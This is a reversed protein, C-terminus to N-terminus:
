GNLKGAFAETLREEAAALNKRNYQVNKVARDVAMQHEVTRDWLECNTFLEQKTDGYVNMIYTGDAAYVGAYKRGSGREIKAKFLYGDGRNAYYASVAAQRFRGETKEVFTWEMEKGGQAQSGLHELFPVSRETGLGCCARTTSTNGNGAVGAVNWDTWVAKLTLTVELM